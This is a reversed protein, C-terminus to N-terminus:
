VGAIGNRRRRERFLATQYEKLEEYLTDKRSMQGLSLETNFIADTIDTDSLDRVGHPDDIDIGEDEIGEGEGWFSGQRCYDSDFFDRKGYPVYLSPTVISRSIKAKHRLDKVLEVEYKPSTDTAMRYLRYPKAEFYTVKQLDLDPCAWEWAKSFMEKTSAIFRGLRHERADFVSLPREDNRWFFIEHETMCAFAFDGKDSIFDTVREIATVIDEGHNQLKAVCRWFTESDVAAPMVGFEEALEKTRGIVGNHIGFHWKGRVRVGFPHSNRDSQKGATKFRVHGLAYRYKKDWLFNAHGQLLFTKARVGKKQVINNGSHTKIAIGTGHPNSKEEAMLLGQLLANVRGNSNGCFGVIRCM